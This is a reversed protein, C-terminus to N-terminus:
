CAKLNFRGSRKLNFWGLHKPNFLGLHKMTEINMLMNGLIRLRRNLTQRFTPAQRWSNKDSHRLRTTWFKNM